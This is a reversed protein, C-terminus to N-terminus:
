RANFARPKRECLITMACLRGARTPSFTDSSHTYFQWPVNLPVIGRWRDRCFRPKTLTNQWFYKRALSVEWTTPMSTPWFNVHKWINKMYAVWIGGWKTPMWFPCFYLHKELNKWNWLVQVFGRMYQAWSVSRNKVHKPFYNIKTFNSSAGHFIIGRM